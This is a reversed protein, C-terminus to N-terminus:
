RRHEPPSGAVMSRTSVGGCGTVALVRAEATAPPHELAAAALGFVVHRLSMISGGRGRRLTAARRRRSRRVERRAAVLLLRGPRSPRARARGPDPRAAREGLRAM